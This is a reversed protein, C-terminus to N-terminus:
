LHISMQTSQVICTNYKNSCGMFIKDISKDQQTKILIEEPLKYNERGITLNFDLKMKKLCISVSKKRKKM